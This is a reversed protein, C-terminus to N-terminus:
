VEKILIDLCWDEGGFVIENNNEDTIRINISQISKRSIPFFTLNSPFINIKYGIPVMFSPFSYLANSLRGEIYGGEIINCHIVITNINTIKPLNEGLFYGNTYTKRKFGLVDCFSDPINFDILTKNDLTLSIRNVTTEATLNFRKEDLYPISLLRKIEKNLTVIEYSGPIIKITKWTVGSDVSYKLKDNKNEIINQISNFTSFGILAAQYNKNNELHLIPDLRQDFNSDKSIIKVTTSLKREQLINILTNLQSSIVDLSTPTSM